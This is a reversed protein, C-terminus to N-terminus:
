DEVIHSYNEFVKGCYVSVDPRQAVEKNTNKIICEDKYLLDSFEVVLTDLLVNPDDEDTVFLTHSKDKYYSTSSLLSKLDNSLKSKWIGNTVDQIIIFNLRENILTKSLQLISRDVDFDELSTHRFRMEFKADVADSPVIIYDKFEKKCDAFDQVVQQEVEIYPTSEDLVNGVKLITGDERFNLYYKQM